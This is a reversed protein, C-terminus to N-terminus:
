RLLRRQSRRGLSSPRRGLVVPRMRISISPARPGYTEWGDIGGEDRESVAVGLFGLDLDEVDEEGEERVAAVGITWSMAWAVREACRRTVSEESRGGESRRAACAALDLLRPLSFIAEGMDGEAERGPALAVLGMAPLPLPNPPPPPAPLALPPPPPDHPHQHHQQRPRLTHLQLLRRQQAENRKRLLVRPHRDRQRSELVSQLPIRFEGESEDVGKRPRPVDVDLEGLIISPRLESHLVPRGVERTHNPQIYTALTTKAGAIRSSLVLKKIQDLGIKMDSRSGKSGLNGIGESYELQYIYGAAVNHIISLEDHELRSKQEPTLNKRPELKTGDPLLRQPANLRERSFWRTITEYKIGLTVALDRRQQVTPRPTHDFYLQLAKLQKDTTRHRRRKAKASSSCSKEPSSPPSHSGEMHVDNDDVNDKLNTPSAESGQKSSTSDVEMSDPHEDESNLLDHIKSRYFQM